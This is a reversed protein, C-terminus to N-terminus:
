VGAGMEVRTVRVLRVIAEVREVSHRARAPRRGVADRRRFSICAEPLSRDSSMPDMQQRDRLRIVRTARNRQCLDVGFLTGDYKRTIGAVDPVTVASAM